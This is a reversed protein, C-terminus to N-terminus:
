IHLSSCSLQTDTMHALSSMGQLPLEQSVKGHKYVHAYTYKGAHEKVEKYKWATTCLRHDFLHHKQTCTKKIKDCSKRKIFSVQGPKCLQVIRQLIGYGCVAAKISKTFHEGPV